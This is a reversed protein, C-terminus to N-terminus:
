FPPRDAGRIDSRRKCTGWVQGVEGSVIELGTGAVRDFIVPVLTVENAGDVVNVPQALTAAIDALVAKYAVNPFGDESNCEESPFPVFMRGRGHRSAIATLKRVLGAVQRPLVDGAFLGIGANATVVKKPRRIPLAIQTSSGIYEANESVCPRIVDVWLADLTTSALTDTVSLGIVDTVAYHLTNISYQGESYCYIKFEVLDTAALAPM